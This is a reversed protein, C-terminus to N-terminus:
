GYGEEEVETIKIVFDDVTETVEPVTSDMQWELIRDEIAEKAAGEAEEETDYPTDDEHLCSGGLWYEFIYKPM